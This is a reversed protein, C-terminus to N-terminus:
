PTRPRGRLVQLWAGATGTVRLWFDLEAPVLLLGGLVDAVTRHPARLARVTGAVAGAALPLAWSWPAFPVVGVLAGLVVLRVALGALLTLQPQHLGAATSRLVRTRQALATRVEGARRHGALTRLTLVPGTHARASASTRTDRGARRLARVLQDDAGTWPGPTGQEATLDRLAQADLVAVQGGLAHDSRDGALGRTIWATHERPHRRVLLRAVPTSGLGQDFGFRATAAGPRPATALDAVLLELCDPALVTDADVVAVLDHGTQWRRWGQTLAGARGGTNDVTRMVTVGPFRRAVQETADTCGDALLVVRHPVRTQAQLSALTDAVTAAADHAPVLVLLKPGSPAPAPRRRRLRARLPRGGTRQPLVSGRVLPRTTVVQDKGTMAHESGAPHM